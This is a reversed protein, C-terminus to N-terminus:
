LHGGKSSRQHGRIAESPRESPTESPRQHAKSPGKIAERIAESPGRIAERIAERIARPHGRVARPRGESAGSIVERMMGARWEDASKVASMVM